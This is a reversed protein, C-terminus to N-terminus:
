SDTPAIAVGVAGPGVHTGVIPGIRARWSSAVPVAARVAAALEDARAHDTAHAVALDVAEGGAAAVVRAVVADRARSWTRVRECVEVRGDALELVPKIRLASGVAAQRGTLRGGRRLYELTDVVLLGVGDQRVAEAAALAAEVEGGARITRVAALVALGLAAGVLRSDVVHVPVEAARAATRAAEVTGSLEGSCHLSVVADFGSAACRAYVEDFAAPPPQATRPLEAVDSLRAYFADTSLGDGAIFVDDGFAVTLPVVELGATTAEDGPLDATGDTVVAVGAM